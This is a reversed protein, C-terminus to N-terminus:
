SIVEFSSVAWLINNASGTLRISDGEELYTATDKSILVLTSGVPVIMNNAIRNEVSSRFISASINATTTPNYNTILLTNVKVATNSNAPNGVIDSAVTIVNAVNTRAIISAVNVINPAAM